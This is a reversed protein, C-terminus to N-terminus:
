WHGYKCSWKVAENTEAQQAEWMDDKYVFEETCYACDISEKNFVLYAKTGYRSEDIYILLKRDESKLKWNM